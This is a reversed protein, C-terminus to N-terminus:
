PTSFYFYANFSSASPFLGSGGNISGDTTYTITGSNSLSTPAFSSQYAYLNDYDGSLSFIQFNNFSFRYFDFYQQSRGYIGHLGIIGNKFIYFIDNLINFNTASLPPFNLTQITNESVYSTGSYTVPFRISKKNAPDNLVAISYTASSAGLFTYTNGSTTNVSFDLPSRIIGDTSLSFGSNFFMQQITTM